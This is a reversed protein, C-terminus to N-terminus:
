LRNKYERLATRIISNMSEGLKTAHNKLWVYQDKPLKALLNIFRM